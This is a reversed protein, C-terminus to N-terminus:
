LVYLELPMLCLQSLERAESRSDCCSMSPSVANCFPIFCVTSLTPSLLTWFLQPFFCQTLLEAGKGWVGGPLGSGLAATGNM